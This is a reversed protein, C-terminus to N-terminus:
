STSYTSSQYSPIPFHLQQSSETLILNPVQKAENSSGECTELAEFKSRLKLDAYEAEFQITRPLM